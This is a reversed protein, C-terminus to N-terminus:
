NFNLFITAYLGLIKDEMLGNEEVENTKDALADILLNLGYKIFNKRKFIQWEMLFLQQGFFGKLDGKM